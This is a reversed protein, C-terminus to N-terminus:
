KGNIKGIDIKIRQNIDELIQLTQKYIDDIFEKNELEDKSISFTNVQYKFGYFHLEFLYVDEIPVLFIHLEINHGLEIFGSSENKLVRQTLAYLESKM